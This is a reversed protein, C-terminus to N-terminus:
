IEEAQQEFPGADATRRTEEELEARVGELSVKTTGHLEHGLRSPSYRDPCTFLAPPLAHTSGVTQNSCFCPAPNGLTAVLRRQIMVLLCRSPDDRYLVRETNRKCCSSCSIVAHKPTLNGAQGPASVGEACIERSGWLEAPHRHLCRAFIGWLPALSAANNCCVNELRSM